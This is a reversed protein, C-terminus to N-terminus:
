ETYCRICDIYLSVRTRDLYYRYASLEISTFQYHMVDIIYQTSDAFIKEINM